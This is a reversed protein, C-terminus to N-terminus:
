TEHVQALVEGAAPVTLHSGEARRGRAFHAFFDLFREHLKTIGDLVAEAPVLVGPEWQLLLEFVEAKAPFFKKGFLGRDNASVAFQHADAFGDILGKKRNQVRAVFFQLQELQFFFDTIESIAELESRAEGFGRFNNGLEEGGHLVFIRVVVAISVFAQEFEFAALGIEIEAASQEGLEFAGRGGPGGGNSIAGTSVATTLRRAIGRGGPSPALEVIFEVAARANGEFRELGLTILKTFLKAADGDAQNVPAGPGSLGAASRGTLALRQDPPQVGNATDAFTVADAYSEQAGFGGPFHGFAAAGNGYPDHRQGAHDFVEIRAGRSEVDDDNVFGALAVDHGQDSEIEPFGDEDDAIVLLDARGGDALIKADDLVEDELVKGSDGIGIEVITLNGDVIEGALGEAAGSAEDFMEAADRFDDLEAVQNGVIVADLRQAVGAANPEARVGNGIANGAGAAVALDITLLREGGGREKDRGDLLGFVLFVIGSLGSAEAHNRQDAVLM